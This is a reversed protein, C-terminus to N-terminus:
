LLQAKEIVPNQKNLVYYIGAPYNNLIEDVIQSAKDRYEWPDKIEGPLKVVYVNPYYTSLRSGLYVAKEIADPDLCVCIKNPKVEEIFEHFRLEQRLSLYKGLIAVGNRFALADFVGEVLVVADKYAEPKEFFLITKRGLDKYKVKNREDIARGVAFVLGGNEYMPFYVRRENRFVFPKVKEIQEETLGRRQLYNYAENALIDAKREKIVSIHEQIFLRKESFCPVPLPFDIDLRGKINCRFCLFLGKVGAISIYLHREKKCFPCDIVVNNNSIEYTKNYIARLLETAVTQAVENRRYYPRDFLKM